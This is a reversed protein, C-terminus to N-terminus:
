NAQPDGMAAATGKRVFLSCTRDTYIEQWRAHQRLRAILGAQVDAHLMFADPAYRAVLDDVPVRGAAAAFYEDWEADNFVYIRGDMLVQYNCDPELVLLGGFLSFNYVRGAPLVTKLRRVAVDPVGM